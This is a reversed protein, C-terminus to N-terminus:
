IGGTGFGGSLEHGQIVERQSNTLKTKCNLMHKFRPKARHRDSCGNEGVERGDGAEGGRHARAVRWLSSQLETKLACLCPVPSMPEGHAAGQPENEGQLGEGQLEHHLPGRQSELEKGLPIIFQILAKEHCYFPACVSLEQCDPLVMSSVSGIVIATM